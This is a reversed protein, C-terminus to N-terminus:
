CNYLLNNSSSFLQFLVTNFCKLILYINVYLFAIDANTLKRTENKTQCMDDNGLAGYFDSPSCADPICTSLLLIHKLIDSIDSRPSKVDRESLQVIGKTIQKYLLFHFLLLLLLTSVNESVASFNLNVDTLPIALGPYCYKGKIEISDLKENVNLCQDFMGFDNTNGQTIGKPIRGSAELVLFFIFVVNNFWM